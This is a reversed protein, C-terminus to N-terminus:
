IRVKEEANRDAEARLRIRDDAGNGAGSKEADTYDENNEALDIPRNDLLNIVQPTLDNQSTQPKVADIMPALGFPGPYFFPYPLLPAYPYQSYYATLYPSTKTSGLNISFVQPMKNAITKMTSSAATALGGFSLGTLFALSNLFRGKRRDAESSKGSLNRSEETKTPKYRPLNLNKWFSGKEVTAHSDNSKGLLATDEPKAVKTPLTDCYAEAVFLTTPITPSSAAVAHGCFRCRLIQQKGSCYVAFATLVIVLSGMTVADHDSRFHPSLERARRRFLLQPDGGHEGALFHTQYIDYLM